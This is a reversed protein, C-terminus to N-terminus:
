VDISQFAQHLSSSVSLSATKNAANNFFFAVLFVLRRILVSQCRTPLLINKKSRSLHYPSKLAVKLIDGGSDNM